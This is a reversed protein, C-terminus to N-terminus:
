AREPRAVRWTLRHPPADNVSVDTFTLGSGDYVETDM